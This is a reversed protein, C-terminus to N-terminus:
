KDAGKAERVDRILNLMEQAMIKDGTDIRAHISQHNEWRRNMTGTRAKLREDLTELGDENIREYSRIVSINESIKFMSDTLRNEMSYVYGIATVFIAVFAGMTTLYPKYREDRMEQVDATVKALTAESHEAYDTLRSLLALTDQTMKDGLHGTV